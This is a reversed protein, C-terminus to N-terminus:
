GASTVKQSGIPFRIFSCQGNSLVQEEPFDRAFVHQDDIAEVFHTTNSLRFPIRPIRLLPATNSSTYLYKMVQCEIRKSSATPVKHNDLKIRVMFNERTTDIAQPIHVTDASGDDFDLAENL